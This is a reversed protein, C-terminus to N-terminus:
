ADATQGDLHFLFSYMSTRFAFNHIRCHYTYANYANRIGSIGSPSGPGPVRPESATASRRCCFQREIRHCKDWICYLVLGFMVRAQELQARGALHSRHACSGTTCEARGSVLSVEM